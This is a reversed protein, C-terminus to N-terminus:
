PRWCRWQPAPTKRKKRPPSRKAQRRPAAARGKGGTLNPPEEAAMVLGALLLQGLGQLVWITLTVVGLLVGLTLRGLFTLVGLLILTGVDAVEPTPPERVRAM